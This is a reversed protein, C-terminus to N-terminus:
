EAWSTLRDRPLLIGRQKAFEMLQQNRQNVTGFRDLCCVVKNCRHISELAQQMASEGIPEFARETIVEAALAQAVPYDLDNEQLVGAAFPIGLQQLRRYVPIGAGGGGIVFLQPAGQPPELELSGYFGNYSGRTVRYLECIYDDTFIEEPTGCRDIRDNRICLVQDSIKQALDLEHLSLIVALQRHRVLDKLISLLELKHRIDLFSTPEDLVLIDPEQCIARALMVRQRQGDSICNFDRDALDTVHVLEMAEAVQERDHASLIGLRGTYPFRGSEVVEECRMLEPEVWGTMMVSVTQAFAQGNMQRISQHGIWVTGAIPELQRTISKLITSKGAGNPGILTVIQGPRVSLEIGHILAKKHYGVTLQETRLIAEKM